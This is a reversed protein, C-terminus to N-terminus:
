KRLRDKVENLYKKYYRRMFRVLVFRMSHGNRSCAAKFAARTVMPINKILYSSKFAKNPKSRFSM